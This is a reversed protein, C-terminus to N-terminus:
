QWPTITLSIWDLNTDQGAANTAVIYVWLHSSSQNAFSLDNIDITKIDGAVNDTYIVEYDSTIVYIDYRDGNTMNSAADWSFTTHSGSTTVITLGDDPIEPATFAPNPFVPAGAMAAGYTLGSSSHNVIIYRDEHGELASIDDVLVKRSNVGDHNHLKGFFNYYDLQVDNVYSVEKHIPETVGTSGSIRYHCVSMSPVVVAIRAMGNIYEITYPIEFSISTPPTISLGNVSLFIGSRIETTIYYTSGWGCGWFAGDNVIRGEYSIYSDSIGPITGEPKIIKM